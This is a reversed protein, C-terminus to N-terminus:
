SAKSTRKNALQRTIRDLTVAGITVFGVFILQAFAGVGLLALGNALVSLLAAGLLTGHVTGWGGNLSAGGIVVAAIVPFVLSGGSNPGVSGVYSFDLIGALAAMVSALIFVVFKYRRIPLRGIQAATPNGGIAVLRFGFLTRHRLIWFIVLMAALWAVQIPIGLPLQAGGLLHFFRLEGTSPLPTNYAPNFTSANSLLLESGQALSLFGLTAIFSPIKVVSTLFANAAGIAVAVLVAIVLALILPVHFPLAGGGLWLVALTTASLGYVAGVSLDIEGLLIVLMQAFAMIGLSSMSRLLTLLNESSMFASRQSQFVLGSLAIALVLGATRLQDLALGRKRIGHRGTATAVM